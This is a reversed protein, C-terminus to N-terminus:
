LLDEPTQPQPPLIGEKVGASEPLNPQQPAGMNPDMAQAPGGQTPVNPQQPNAPTGGPPALPQEGIIALLNPDTTQLLNIHEQMHDLVSQVLEPDRRLIYDALVDRHEKIHLAHNDSFIAIVEEGRVMAENEGKITTMEDMKGETLYDLNGTNMVMLYKEPSDILGMQLLNEAVQARGATTNHTVTFDKLLFHPDEKLTFGYYKGHGKSVLKIGYNRWDKQKEVVEAQKRPLKTPIRWTDGGISLINHERINDNSYSNEGSRIKKTRSVKFGLSRAIFEFDDTIRDDKQHIVFTQDVLTGYADIFGALLNLMTNPDNYKYVYPVHKNQILELERLNSIMQNRDQSGNRLKSTIRYTRANGSSKSRSDVLYLGQMEAYEKWANKIEVDETTISPECRNGYGLWTGLIYPDVPVGKHDFDVNTRFGMLLGQEKQSLELYESVSIDIIDGKKHGKYDSCYKLTMIHSKNCTYIHEDKKSKTRVEFMEEFGSGTKEVTKPKSDWGMVQDGAKIDQVERFTGDAMMVETGEELCQMLANGVDVVVRNISKIDDSKFERMETSNNLGSIAAIRPVNAFDKLLNIVGTGVDELLHIYSQQLGSVFQLAQSQVLALANGSRLSQEPNGRAVSNVGSLTEMSKEILQILQYVEPSTRVLDLAEPKGMQANYEIFNMGEAIQDIQVDNGRPNLINQVGFANVNTASTSYLSNLMEQLPLLDFMDTYGYPTGLIDSPTIRYIPLDRYPMVTDELIAEKDVYLIYRGNPMSETRKHFFEYVPIDVTENISKGLVRNSRKDIQDKTEQTLIQERVEPYKAALDYKNIFTRCLVWDNQAFNEKTSDFVVDFPSMLKFDLDGEYIPFPKLPQGDEAVPEGDEDFDYIDSEDPEVYDYIRGKTSNWELKVYGSGLVIAYEVADKIVKELKMERMYYDLLGNGLNAQILSKRDTNVARCRFSPRTSTVMVHIHRALNRYHNVALNVLEGQEGGSSLTHGKDYYQGHYSRWSRKIKEIYDTDTIGRFWERSKDSLTEVAQEAREAAFYKQDHM